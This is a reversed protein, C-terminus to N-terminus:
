VEYFLYEKGYIYLFNKRKNRYEATRIKGGKSDEVIKRNHLGKRFTINRYVFDAVYLIHDIKGYQESEFPEQLLFAIQRDLDTIEGARQVNLLFHWREMEKISAFLTGDSYTRNEKGRDSIDIGYKNRKPQDQAIFQQLAYKGSVTTLKTIKEKILANRVLAAMKPNEELQKETIM